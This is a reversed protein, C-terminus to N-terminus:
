MYCMHKCKKRADISDSACISQKQLWEGTHQEHITYAVCPWLMVLYQIPWCLWDFTSVIIFFCPRTKAKNQTKVKSPGDWHPALALLKLNTTSMFKSVPWQTCLMYDLEGGSAEYLHPSMGLTSRVEEALPLKSMGDIRKPQCGFWM